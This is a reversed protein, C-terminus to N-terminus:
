AQDATMFPAGWAIDLPGTTADFVGGLDVAGICNKNTATDSYIIGWWCATPNAANKAWQAPDGFDLQPVGGVVSVVPTALTLGGVTMSGGSEENVSYDVVGGAGWCPNDATTVPVITNDVIACKLVDPTAGLDFPCDPSGKFSYEIYSDFVIVTGQAM